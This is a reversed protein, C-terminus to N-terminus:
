TLYGRRAAERRMNWWVRGAPKGAREPQWPKKGIGNYQIVVADRPKARDYANQKWIGDARTFYAEKGMIYSMWAQENGSYGQARAELRSEHGGFTDWVHARTGATMLYLGGQYRCHGFKHTDRWGVFDEKRKLLRGLDGCVIADIDLVMIRGGIAQAAEASFAWLKVCTNGHEGPLIDRRDILNIDYTLIDKHLGEPNDTICWFRMDAPCHKRVSYHLVNVHEPDYSRTGDWKWCIVNLM